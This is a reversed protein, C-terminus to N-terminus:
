SHALRVGESVTTNSYAGSPESMAVTSGSIRRSAPRCHGSPRSHTFWCYSKSPLIAHSQWGASSGQKSDSPQTAYGSHALRVGESVTTKSNAGSPESMAVTSGSIRRSAPRCHGLPRSHTFWCYSKSPLIAQSQWGASSGQKSESPQTAYGSQALRVGESVTTKSYAGSPDSMAVTSGSVTTSLSQLNSQWYGSLISCYPEMLCHMSAIHGDRTTSFSQLNSQWYGSLISCYPEMLCHMSAMHLVSDLFVIFIGFTTLDMSALSPQPKAPLKM